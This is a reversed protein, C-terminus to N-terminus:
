AIRQLDEPSGRTAESRLQLAPARDGDLRFLLDRPHIPKLRLEFEYGRIRAEELLDKTAAQGSFLLVKCTPYRQRIQLAMTVGDIGPMLVDSIISDPCRVECAVLASM